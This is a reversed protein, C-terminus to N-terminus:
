RGCGCGCGFFFFYLGCVRSWTRTGAGTVCREVVCRCLEGQRWSVKTCLSILTNLKVSSFGKSATAVAQILTGVAARVTPVKDVVFREITTQALPHCKM